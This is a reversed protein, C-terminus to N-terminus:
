ADGFSKRQNRTTRLNEEASLRIANYDIKSGNVLPGVNALRLKTSEARTRKCGFEELVDRINQESVHSEGTNIAKKIVNQSYGMKWIRVILRKTHPELPKKM